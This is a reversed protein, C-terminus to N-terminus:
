SVDFERGLIEGSVRDIYLVDEEVDVAFGFIFENQCRLERESDVLETLDICDSQTRYFLGDAVLMEKVYSQHVSGKIKYMYNLYDSDAYIDIRVTLSGKFKYTVKDTGNLEYPEGDLHMNTIKLTGYPLAPRRGKQNAYVWTLHDVGVQTKLVGAFTTTVLSSYNITMIDQDTYEPDTFEVVFGNTYDGTVTVTTVGSFALEMAAKIDAAVANYAIAATTDTGLTATWTGGTPVLDFVISQICNLKGCVYSVWDGLAKDIAATYYNM